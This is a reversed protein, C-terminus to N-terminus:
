LKMVRVSNNMYEVLISEIAISFNPNKQLVSTIKQVSILEKGCYIKGWNSNIQHHVLWYEEIHYEGGNLLDHWVGNTSFPVSVYHGYASFNLVIIFHELQGDKAFGWRHYIAIDRSEDVGYGRENFATMAEDYHRPVFTTRAFPHIRPVSRLSNRTSRWYSVDWQMM